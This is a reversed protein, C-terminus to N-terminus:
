QPVEPTSNPDFAVIGDIFDVTAVDTAGDPGNFEVTITGTLSDESDLAMSVRRLHLDPLQDRFSKAVVSQVGAQGIHDLDMIFSAVDTGFSPRMPRDGLQTNLVARVRDVNIKTPNHTDSVSGHAGIRFPYAITKM